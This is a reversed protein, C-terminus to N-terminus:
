SRSRIVLHRGARRGLGIMRRGLALDLAPMLCELVADQELVIVQQAIKFGLDLGEDGVVIVQSVVLADAVEREGVDVESTTLGNQNFAFPDFSLCDAIAAQQATLL